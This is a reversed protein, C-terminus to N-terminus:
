KAMNSILLNLIAGIREDKKPYKDESITLKVYSLFDLIDIYEETQINSHGTQGIISSLRKRLIENINTFDPGTHNKMANSIIDVLDPNFRESLINNGSYKNNFFVEIYDTLIDKLSARWNIGNLVSDIFEDNELKYVEIFVEEKSKFYKYFSGVSINSKEAIDSINTKKYGRRRFIKRAEKIIFERDM